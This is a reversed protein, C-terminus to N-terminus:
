FDNSQEVIELRHVVMGGDICCAYLVAGPAEADSDGMSKLMSTLPWRSNLNDTM